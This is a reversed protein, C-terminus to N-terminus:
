EKRIFEVGPNTLINQASVVFEVVIRNRNKADKNSSTVMVSLIRFYENSTMQVLFDKMGSEFINVQDHSYKM